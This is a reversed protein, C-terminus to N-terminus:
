HLLDYHKSINVVYKDVPISEYIVYEEVNLTAASKTTLKMWNDHHLLITGPDRRKVIKYDRALKKYDLAYIYDGFFSCFTDKTFCICRKGSPNKLNKPQLVKIDPNPSVHFLLEKM